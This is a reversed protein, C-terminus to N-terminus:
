YEKAIVDCNGHCFTIDILSKLKSLDRLYYISNCYTHSINLRGVTVCNNETMKIGLYHSNETTKLQQRDLHERAQQVPKIKLQCKYLFCGLGSIYQRDTLHINGLFNKKARNFFFQISKYVGRNTLRRTRCM